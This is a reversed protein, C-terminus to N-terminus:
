RGNPGRLAELVSLVADSDMTPSFSLVPEGNKRLLNIDFSLERFCLCGVFKEAKFFHENCVTCCSHISDPSIKVLKKVRPLRPQSKVMRFAKPAVPATKQPQHSAVYHAKVLTDLSRGLASLHQSQLDAPVPANVGLSTAVTGALQFLTANEFSLTDKGINITGKFTDQSKKFVLNLTDNGPVSGDFKANRTVVDLWSVITRAVLVSDLSDSTKLAKSLSKAGEVGLTSELFKSSKSM